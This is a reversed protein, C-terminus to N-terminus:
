TDNGVTLWLMLLGGSIVVMPVIGAIRAPRSLLRRQRLTRVLLVISAIAATVALALFLLAASTAAAFGAGPERLARPLLVSAAFLGVCASAMFYTSRNASAM